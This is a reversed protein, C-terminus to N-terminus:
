EAVEAFTDAFQQAGVGRAKMGDLTDILTSAEDLTLDSLSEVPRDVIKSVIRLRENRDRVSFSQFTPFIRVEQERTIMPVSPAAPPREAPQQEAVAASAQAAASEWDPERADAPPEVVVEADVITPEAPPTPSTRVAQALRNVGSRQVQQEAVEGPIHEITERSMEDDTYIGSLDQPFAKRHALAEACKGTMHAPKTRWMSNLDGNAKRGAYEEFLAVATFPEGNRYVTAKAASPLGPGLWVDVWEGSPGCWLTDAVGYSERSAAAARRAVLRFGDIGTQITQKGQREILYIQRLFPDLGTRTCQHFFVALDANSANVVGIQALGAKQKDTWFDQDGTIALSSGGRKVVDTPPVEAAQAQEATPEQTTTM